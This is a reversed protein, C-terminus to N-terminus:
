ARKVAVIQFFPGFLYLLARVLPWSRVRNYLRACLRGAPGLHARDAATIEPLVFRARAFGDELLSRLERYTLTRVKDFPIGRFRRAYRDQWRRPLFGLGWLRVHPDPGLTTRNPTTLVLAGRPSLVREAEGIMGGPDRLHEVVNAAIVLDYSANPFPLADASACVLEVECGAELLRKRAIVLWRMAIDAATVTPFRQALTPLFPGSGCGVELVRTTPGPRGLERDVLALCSLGRAPGTELHGALYGAALRRPVEPTIDFYHRVLEAFDLREFQERLGRAKARDAEIGIYPDASLRFDPIGCVIPYVAGCGACRFLESERETDSRCAPCHYRVSM